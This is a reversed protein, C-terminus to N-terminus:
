MRILADMILTFWTSTALVFLTTGALWLRGKRALWIWGVLWAIQILIPAMMGSLHDINRTVTLYSLVAGQVIWVVKLWAQRCTDCHGVGCIFGVLPPLYSAVFISGIALKRSILSPSSMDAMISRAALLFFGPRAALAIM